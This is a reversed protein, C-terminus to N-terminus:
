RPSVCRARAENHDPVITAAKGIAAVVEADWMAHEAQRVARGLTARVGAWSLSAFGAASLLVAVVRDTGSPAYTLAAWVTAAVAAAATLIAWSWKWVYHFALRRGNALLSAAAGVYARGDLLQDAAQQGTLLRRWVCGQQRLARIVAQDCRVPDSRGAVWSEWRRLSVRVASASRAPLRADLDDLWALANAIRYREFREALVQPEASDPLLTTDALMRGLGFALAASPDTGALRNRIDLYLDHVARRVDDRAHGPTDLVAQISKATPMGLGLAAELRALDAGVHAALACAKEYPTMAGIGPLHPPLPREEDEPPPGPRRTSDYLEALLWGLSVALCVTQQASRSDSM